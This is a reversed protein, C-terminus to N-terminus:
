CPPWPSVSKICAPSVVRRSPVPWASAKPYAHQTLLPLALQCNTGEHPELTAPPMICAGPRPKDGFLCYATCSSRHHVHWM